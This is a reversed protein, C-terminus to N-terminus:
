KTQMPLLEAAIEELESSWDEPETVPILVFKSAGVGIFETIKQRLAPIGIPVIDTPDLDPRRARAAAIYHESLEGRSYPILAGYHEPDIERDHEAAVQKITDIGIGVDAPTTFSPLWGDAM